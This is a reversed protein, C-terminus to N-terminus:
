PHAPSHYLGWLTSFPGSEVGSPLLSDSLANLLTSSGASVPFSVALDSPGRRPAQALTTDLAM